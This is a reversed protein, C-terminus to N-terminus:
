RAEEIAGTQTKGTVAAAERALELVHEIEITLGM